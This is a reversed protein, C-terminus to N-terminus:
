ISIIMEFGNEQQLFVVVKLKILNLTKAHLLTM